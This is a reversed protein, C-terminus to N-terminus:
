PLVEHGLFLINFKKRIAELIYSNSGVTNKLVILLKLTMKSAFQITKLKESGYRRQKVKKDSLNQCGDM